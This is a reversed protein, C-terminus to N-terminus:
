EFFCKIIEEKRISGFHENINVRDLVDMVAGRNYTMGELLKEVPEIDKVGLFDGYLKCSKIKSGELDMYLEIEGGDFRKKNHFSAKPDKGYNWGWLRYKEDSLNQIEQIDDGEPIYETLPIENNVTEKLTDKFVEIGLDDNVYPRINTVRSRVSRIGKSQLKDDRVNLADSLVSLDTDYLITGHFLLSNGHLSMATGSFKAGEITLDNRGNVEGKVGFASLANLIPLTFTSFSINEPTLNRLIFTYCLTGLDHYVAGGGTIRRIVNIGKEDIFRHNIENGTNQFKGVVVTPENRWLMFVSESELKKNKLFYEEYALNVYPKVSNTEIYIM